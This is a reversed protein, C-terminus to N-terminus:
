KTEGEDELEVFCYGNMDYVTMGDIVVPSFTEENEFYVLVDGNPFERYDYPSNSLWNILQDKELYISEWGNWTENNTWGTVIEDENTTGDISFRKKEM